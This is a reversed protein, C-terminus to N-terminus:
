PLRARHGRVIEFGIQARQLLRDLRAIGRLVRMARRELRQQFRQAAWLDPGGIFGPANGAARGIEDEGTAQQGQAVHFGLIGPRRM